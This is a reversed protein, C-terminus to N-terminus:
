VRTPVDFDSIIDDALAIFVASHQMNVYILRRRLPINVALARRYCGRDRRHVRQVPAPERASDDRGRIDWEDVVM